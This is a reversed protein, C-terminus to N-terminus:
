TFLGRVNVLLWDLRENWRRQRQQRDFVEGIAKISREFELHMVFDALARAFARREFEALLKLLCAMISEDVPSIKKCPISMGSDVPRKRKFSIVARKPARSMGNPASIAKSEKMEFM